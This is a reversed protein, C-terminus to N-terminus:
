PQSAVTGLAPAPNAEPAVVPGPRHSLWALAGHLDRASFPNQNARALAAIKAVRRGPALEPILMLSYTGVNVRAQPRSSPLEVVLLPQRSLLVHSVISPPVTSEIGSGKPRAARPELWWAREAGLRRALGQLWEEDALGVADHALPAATQSRTYRSLGYGILVAVLQAMVALIVTALHARAMLILFCAVGGVTSSLGLAWPLKHGAMGRSWFSRRFTLLHYVSLGAALSAAAALVWTDPTSVGVSKFIEIGIAFAAIGTGASIAIKGLLATLPVYVFLSLLHKGFLMGQALTAKSTGSYRDAFVFPVDVVRADPLCVLLELLIKFGIPRLEMGVVADQRVCFFGSLPDTTRRAEAFFTKAIWSVGRSVIKRGASGLGAASGGPMYRSAVAIDAGAEIAAVLAPIAAPPHQLDGDMVCVVKGSALRLGTSVATALGTHEEPAREVVRWHPDAAAIARLLPRTESDTSDDVFIVESSIGRLAAGLARHLAALNPGENRTPVVVSVTHRRRM